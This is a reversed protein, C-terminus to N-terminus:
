AEDDDDESEHTEGKKRFRKKSSGKGQQVVSIQAVGDDEDDADLLKYSSQKKAFQVAERVQMEYSQLVWLSWCM